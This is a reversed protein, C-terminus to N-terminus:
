FKIIKDNSLDLLIGYTINLRENKYFLSILEHFLFIMLNNTKEFREFFKCLFFFQFM